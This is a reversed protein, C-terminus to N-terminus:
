RMMRTQLGLLPIEILPAIAIVAAVMPLDPFAGIAIALAIPSNRASVTFNLLIAEKIDFKFVYQLLKSFIYM